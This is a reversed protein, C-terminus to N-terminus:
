LPARDANRDARRSRGRDQEETVVAHCLAPAHRCRFREGSAALARLSNVKSLRASVDFRNWSVVSLGELRCRKTCPWAGLPAAIRRPAAALGTEPRTWSSPFNKLSPSWFNQTLPTVYPGKAGRGSLPTGRGSRWTSSLSRRRM